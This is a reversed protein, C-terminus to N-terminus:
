GGQYLRSLPVLAIDSPYSFSTLLSPTEERLFFFFNLKEKDELQSKDLQQNERDLTCHYM